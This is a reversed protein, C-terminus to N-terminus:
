LLYFSMGIVELVHRFHVQVHVHVHVHDFTYTCTYFHAPVINCWTNLGFILGHKKTSKFSTKLGLQCTQVHNLTFIAHRQSKHTMQIMGAHRYVAHRYAPIGAHDNKFCTLFMGFPM